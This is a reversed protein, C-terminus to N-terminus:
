QVSIRPTSGIKDRVADLVPRSLVVEIENQIHVGNSLYGDSFVPGANSSQPLVRATARYTPTILFSLMVATAMTGVTAITVIWKRRSIVLVYHRLDNSRPPEVREQQQRLNVITDLGPGYPTVFLGGHEGGD